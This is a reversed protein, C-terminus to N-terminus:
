PCPESAELLRFSVRRNKAREQPTRGATLPRSPGFGVTCLRAADIGRSTLQRAVERARLLDLKQGYLPEGGDTHGELAVRLHASAELVEFVADIAAQGSANPATGGAVFGVDELIRVSLCVRVPAAPDPPVPAPVATPPTSSGSTPPTSSGTPPSPAPTEAPAAGVTVAPVREDRPLAPGACHALALAAGVFSARRRLIIATSGDDM